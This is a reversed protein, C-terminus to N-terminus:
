RSGREALTNDISSDMEAYHDGDNGNQSVQDMREAGKKWEDPRMEILELDGITYASHRAGFVLPRGGIPWSLHLYKEVNCWFYRGSGSRMVRDAWDPANKWDVKDM